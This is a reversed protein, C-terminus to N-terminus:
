AASSSQLYELTGEQLEKEGDWVVINYGPMFESPDEKRFDIARVEPSLAKLMGNDGGDRAFRDGWVELNNPDAIDEKTLGVTSLIEDSDLVFKVSTTKSLNSRKFDLAHIGGRVGTVDVGEREFISNAEEMIPIRLDLKGQDDPSIKVGAREEFIKAQEPTLDYANVLELTIQPGRDDYMIWEPDDGHKEKFVKKPMTSDAKLGYKQIFNDMTKHWIDQKEPTLPTVSFYPEPQRHGDQDYGWIEAGNCHSILIKRRLNEPIYEIIDRQVRGMGGGTVLFLVRGESLLSSLENIIEPNAKEYVGAITEDVDALILKTQTNFRVSNEKM